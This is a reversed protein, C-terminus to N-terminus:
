EYIETIKDNVFTVYIYKDDNGWGYKKYTWIEVVGLSTTSTNKLRPSGYAEICMEQTMGISIKNDLILNGYTVGHKKIINERYEENERKLEIIKDQVVNEWEKIISDAYSKCVLARWYRNGNKYVPSWIVNTKIGDCFSNYEGIYGEFNNEKKKSNEISMMMDKTFEHCLKREECSEIIMSENEEKSTFELVFKNGKVSIKQVNWVSKPKELYDYNRFGDINFYENFSTIEKGVYMEKLLNYSKLSVFNSINAAEFKIPEGYYRINPFLNSEIKEGRIYYKRGDIKLVYIIDSNIYLHNWIFEGEMKRKLKYYNTDGLKLKQELFKSKTFYNFLLDKEQQTVIIDEVHFYKRNPLQCVTITDNSICSLTLIPENSNDSSFLTDGILYLNKYNKKILKIKDKYAYRWTGNEEHKLKVIPYKTNEKLIHIIENKEDQWTKKTEKVVEPVYMDIQAFTSMVIAILVITLAIKKM